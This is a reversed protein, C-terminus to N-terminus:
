KKPVHIVISGQVQTGPDTLDAGDSAGIQNDYVVAGTTKDWIRIRFRDPEGPSRKDEDIATLMFGYDGSGNITGSGKYQARHGGSIVLWEYVTSKFNLNGAHFQFETNGTPISAGKQYKSVFGFNARGVTDPFLKSAGAPSNIWGGGTVFGGNPDYTVVYQFTGRSSAHVDSGGYSATITDVNTISSSYAVSCSSSEGDSNPTLSCQAPTFTGTGSTAFMVTGTPPTKTGDNEIDRVTVMCTSSSGLAVVEPDCAVVTSTPRLEATITFSDESVEHLASGEYAAEIVHDGAVSTPTYEVSCSSSERRPQRGPHLQRPPAERVPSDSGTFSDDRRQLM